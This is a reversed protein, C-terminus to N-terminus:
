KLYRSLKTGFQLTARELLAKKHWDPAKSYKSLFDYIEEPMQDSLQDIAPSFSINPIELKKTEIKSFDIKSPSIKNEINMQKRVSKRIFESLKYDNQKCYTKLKDVLNDPISINIRAM